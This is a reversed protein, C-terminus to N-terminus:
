LGKKILREVCLFGQGVKVPNVVQLAEGARGSSRSRKRRAFM